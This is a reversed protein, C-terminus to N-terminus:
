MIACSRNSSRPSGQQHFLEEEVVVGVPEEEEEEEPITTKFLTSRQAVEEGQSSKLIVKV